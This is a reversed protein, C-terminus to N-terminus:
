LGLVEANNQMAKLTIPIFKKLPINLEEECTKIQDRNAGAAFSKQKFKKLVSEVSVSKLKKDPKVLACAIILGTLEDCAYVSKAILTKRPEKDCHGRIAEIILKDANMEKLKEVTMDTHRKLSKDTAEYDADHLIGVVEWAHKSLETKKNKKKFYDFLAAMTFGVGLGHKIMNPSNKLDDLIKIANDRTVKSM